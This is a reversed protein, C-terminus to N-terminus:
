WIEFDDTTQRSIKQPKEPKKQSPDVSTAGILPNRPQTNPSDTNPKPNDQNEQPRVTGNKLKKRYENMKDPAGEM